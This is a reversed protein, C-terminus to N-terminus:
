FICIQLFVVVSNCQMQFVTVDFFSNISFRLLQSILIRTREYPNGYKKRALLFVLRLSLMLGIVLLVEPHQLITSVNGYNLFRYSFCLLTIQEVGFCMYSIYFDRHLLKSAHKLICFSNSIMRTRSNFLFTSCSRLAFYCSM